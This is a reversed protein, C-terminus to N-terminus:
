QRDLLQAGVGLAVTALADEVRGDRERRLAPEVGDLHPRHGLLGVHRQAREVPVEGGLDVEEHGGQAPLELPGLRVRAVPRDGAVGRVLPHHVQQVPRGPAQLPVRVEGLGQRPREHERVGRDLGLDERDAHQEGGHQGAGHVRVARLEGLM